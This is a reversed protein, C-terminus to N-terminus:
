LTVNVSEVRWMEAGALYDLRTLSLTTVAFLLASEPRLNLAVALAARITGAHAIAIAPKM